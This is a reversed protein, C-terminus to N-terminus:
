SAEERQAYCCLKHVFHCEEEARDSLAKQPSISLTLSLVLFPSLISTRQTCDYKLAREIVPPPRVSPLPLTPTQGVMELLIPSPASHNGVTAWVQQSHVQLNRSPLFLHSKWGSINSERDASSAMTYPFRESWFLRPPFHFYQKSVFRWKRVISHQIANSASDPRVNDNNREQMSLRNRCGCFESLSLSHSRPKTMTIIM